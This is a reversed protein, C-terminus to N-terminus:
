LGIAKRFRDSDYSPNAQALALELHEVIKTFTELELTENLDNKCGKLALAILQFHKRTM